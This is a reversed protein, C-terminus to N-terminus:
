SYPYCKEKGFEKQVSSNKMKMTWKTMALFMFSIAFNLPLSSKHSTAFSCLRSVENGITTMMNMIAIQKYILSVSTSLFIM